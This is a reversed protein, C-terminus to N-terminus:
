NRSSAATVLKESKFYAEMVQRVMPAAVKGGGGGSNEAFAVVVIEPKDYPAYAGFWAHSERPPDEATGSKGAVPPLTPVNLAKGTGESVVARLGEQLVRITEPKMSLSERKNQAADSAKLLHPQVRYGGNAVVSFMVAVQLPSTQLFGQGISTNITDGVHWGENLNKRKWADDAIFGHAEQASLEIGTKEGFGFKRAWNILPKEGTGLGIQGFFTNSSMALAGVFGLSGFGAKNWDWFQTGGASLYPYTGLISSPSFKGSELGATTTVIKFTSAPPYGQLARNIFPFQQRQLQQWIKKDVQTTFWNPDFAPRSVMAYVEGNNPNLVVIAGKREGLALEAAKQLDLDLTLQMDKGLEAPKEQLVRLVKGRGDIEIQRNGPKGRLQLDFVNEIGMKGVVDGTKYGSDKRKKLEEHNIEGVYGLVHAALQKNPYDRWTEVDVEVGQLQNKYETLRTVQESTINHAIVRLFPSDYNTQELRKQIEAEPINLTESLLKLTTPWNAQNPTNRWVAVSHALRSGALIKGKRDLINGRGAPQPINRIRNNDSLQRNN